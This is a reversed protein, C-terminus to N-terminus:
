FFTAHVHVTASLILLPSDLFDVKTWRSSPQPFVKPIRAERRAVVTFGGKAKSEHDPACSRASGHCALTAGVRGLVHRLKERHSLAEDTCANGRRNVLAASDDDRRQGLAGHSGRDFGAIILLVEAKLDDLLLQPARDPKELLM